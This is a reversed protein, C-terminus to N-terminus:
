RAQDSESVQRNFWPKPDGWGLDTIGFERLKSVALLRHHAAFTLVHAVMAGYTMVMPEPAFADVFTEDFRGEGLWRACRTRRVGPRDGALRRRMSAVSEHREVAFDYERDAMAACWMAM